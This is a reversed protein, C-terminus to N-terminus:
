LHRPSNEIVVWLCSNGLFYFSTPSLYPKSPRLTKTPKPDKINNETVLSIFAQSKKVPKAKRTVPPFIPVGWPIVEEAYWWAEMNKWPGWQPNWGLNLVIIRDTMWPLLHTESIKKISYPCSHSCIMNKCLFFFVSPSFLKYKCQWNICVFYM